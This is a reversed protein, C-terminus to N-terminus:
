ARVNYPTAPAPVVYGALSDPCEDCDYLNCFYGDLVPAGEETANATDPIYFLTGWVSGNSCHDNYESVQFGADTLSSAATDVDPFKLYITM